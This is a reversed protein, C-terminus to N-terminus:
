RSVLLAENRREKGWGRRESGGTKREESSRVEFQLHRFTEGYEGNKIYHEFESAQIQGDNDMDMTYLLEALEMVETRTYTGFHSASAITKREMKAISERKQDTMKSATKEAVHKQRQMLSVRKSPSKLEKKAMKTTGKKIKM